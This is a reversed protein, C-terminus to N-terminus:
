GDAINGVAQLFVHCAYLHDAGKGAFIVFDFAEGLGVLLIKGQGVRPLVKVENQKASFNNNKFYQEVLRKESNKLLKFFLHSSFKEKAFYALVLSDSAKRSLKTIASIKM